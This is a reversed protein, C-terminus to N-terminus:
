KGAVTVQCIYEVGGVIVTIECNGAQKAEIKGMAPDVDAMEPASSAFSIQPAKLKTNKYTIAAKQGTKLQYQTKSVVPKSITITCPYGVGDVVASVEVPTEQWSRVEVNENEVAVARSSSVWTIEKGKAVKNLKLSFKQGMVAAMAKKSIAPINSKVTSSYKAANKDKPDTGGFLITIKASGKDLATVLGTAPDVSVVSPKSSAYGTPVVGTGTLVSGADMTEGRSTLIVAKMNKPVESKEITFSLTKVARTYKGRSEFAVVKVGTGAKKASFIGNSDVNGEKSRVKYGDYGQGFYAAGKLDIKQGVVITGANQPAPDPGPGPKPDDPIKPPNTYDYNNHISANLLLDNDGDIIIKSWESQSGAYYVDSLSNCGKFAYESVSYLSNTLM